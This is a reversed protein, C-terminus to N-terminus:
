INLGYSVKHPILNSRKRENKTSILCEFPFHELFVYFLRIKKNM